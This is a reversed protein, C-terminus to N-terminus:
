RCADNGADPMALFTITAPAFSVNGAATQAGALVPLADNAALALDTGNLQVARTQLDSSAVSLTYREAPKSVALSRATTKDTDIVLM